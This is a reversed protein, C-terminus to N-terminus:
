ALALLKWEKNQVELKDQKVESSMAAIYYSLNVLLFAFQFPIGDIGCFHKFVSGLFLIVLRTGRYAEVDDGINCVM